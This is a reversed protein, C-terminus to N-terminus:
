AEEEASVQRLRRDKLLPPAAVAMVFALLSSLGAMALAVEGLVLGDAIASVIGTMHSTYRQVALFGGANVPGAVFALLGGLQRNARRTRVKTTLGHFVTQRM